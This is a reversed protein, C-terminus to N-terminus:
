LPCSPLLWQELWSSWTKEPTSHKRDASVWSQAMKGQRFPPSNTDELLLATLNWMRRQACAHSQTQLAQQPRKLSERHSPSKTNTTQKRSSETMVRSSGSISIIATCDPLERTEQLAWKGCADKLHNFVNTNASPQSPLSLCLNGQLQKM